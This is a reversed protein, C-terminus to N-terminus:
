LTKIKNIIEPAIRGELLIVSDPTVIGRVRQGIEEPNESFIINESKMGAETAAKKIEAFWDQTTIVALDCTEGIKRGIRQHVEKAAPGLEILCPMILIKKSAGYSASPKGEPGSWLKLHELGALVGDSNASYTSDIVDAKHKAPGLVLRMAGQEPRIKATGRAIEELSLGLERAAAAALLLNEINQGGVLNVRFEAREGKRDVARFSLWDKEIKINEAWFDLKEKTSCYKTNLIKYKTNLITENDGNLIAVGNEPLSSILEQGGEASILNDLSGFLALHQENVGTVIAMRPQVLGAVERIKGKGYAGMECIFVQHSEDLEQLVGKAIGIESNQHEKTARVRFKTELITKLFEKTSTKGFSGTIGIVTLNKLTERKAKAKQLVRWRWFFFLPQLALIVVSVFLPLFVDFFLLWFFFRNTERNGLGVVTIEALVCLIFLFVTKATWVPRKITRCWLDRLFVVGELAYIALLTALWFRNTILALGGQFSARFTLLFLLIKAIKWPHWVLRRGKSTRFHDLFRGLHYEKLQWLYLYFLTIKLERGLWLLAVFLLLFM